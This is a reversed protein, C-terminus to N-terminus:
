WFTNSGICFCYVAARENAKAIDLRFEEAKANAAGAAKKAEAGDREANAAREHTLALDRKLYEEKVNGM